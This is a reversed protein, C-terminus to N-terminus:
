ATPLPLTPPTYNANGYRAVGNTIRVSGMYEPTNYVLTGFVFNSVADGFGAGAATAKLIGNAHAYYTSGVRSIAINFTTSNALGLPLGGFVSAGTSDKVYLSGLYIQIYSTTIAPAKNLIIFNGTTITASNSTFEVTFDGTLQLNAQHPTTLVGTALAFNAWTTLGTPPTVNSYSVGTATVTRAFSSQDVFVSSGNAASDNALQLVVQSWLSAGAARPMMAMM